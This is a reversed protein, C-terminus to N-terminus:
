PRWIVFYGEKSGANDAQLAWHTILRRTANSQTDLTLSLAVRGGRVAIGSFGSSGASSNPATFPLWVYRTGFDSSVVAFFGEGSEYNGVPIGQIQQESRKSSCCSQSGALYLNGAADSEIADIEISNGKDDSSRRTLLSQARLLSGDSVQFRGYWATKTSGVNTPSTYKDTVILRQADLQLNVNKPDRSFTSAGTGGNILGVMYLYGDQGVVVREGRSDAGLTPAISTYDYSRWAVSGDYKWARLFPVQLTSSAQNFGTAILRQQEGAIAIDKWTETAASAQVSTLLSGSASYAFASNAVIGAVSGDSGIACRSVNGPNQNWVLTGIDASLVAIGFDGCVVIKGAQNIEIDNVMQGIRSMSIVAQGQSNLRVIAGTGGGLLVSPTLNLPVYSSMSGVLIVSGDAGIAVGRLTDSNVDGIYSASEVLLNTSASLLVPRSVLPLYTARSGSQQALGSSSGCVLVILLMLAILARM